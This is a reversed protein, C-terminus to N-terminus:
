WLILGLHKKIGNEPTKYEYDLLWDSDKAKIILIAKRPEIKKLRSIFNAKM